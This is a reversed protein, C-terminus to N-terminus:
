NAAFGHMKILYAKREATMGKATTAPRGAFVVGREALQEPTLRLQESTLTHVGRGAQLAKLADVRSGEKTEGGSTFSVQRPVAADDAAASVYAAVLGDMEYPMARFAAIEASAWTGARERIVAADRAAERTARDENEKTLAAIQAQMAKYEASESFNVDDEEAKVPTIAAVTPQIAASSVTVAQKPDTGLILARFTALVGVDSTDAHSVDRSTHSVDRDNEADQHAPNLGPKNNGKKGGKEATAQAVSTSQTFATVLQADPVRPDLVLANGIITKADRDWM